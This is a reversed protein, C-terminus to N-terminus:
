YLVFQSEKVINEIFRISYNSKKWQYYFKSLKCGLLREINNTSILKSNYNLSFVKHKEASDKWAYGKVELWLKSKTLYFDPTYKVKKNGIEISFCKIEYKFRIKNIHLYIATILEYSSRYIKTKYRYKNKRSGKLHNTQLCGCSKTHGNRLNGGAVTVKGGCDCVCDWMAKKNKTKSRKLVTLREFKLGSIDIFNINSSKLCGCSKTHGARLDTGFVIIVKGCDCQCTWRAERRNKHPSARSIVTLKGYKKESVNIVRSM